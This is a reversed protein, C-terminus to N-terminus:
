LILEVLSLIAKEVNEGTLASTRLYGSWKNADELSNIDSDSVEIFEVLDSKNGLVFLPIDPCIKHAKTHWFSLQKLSKSQTLDFVLLCGNSGQLYYDSMQDIEISTTGAIDWIVLEVKKDNFVINKTTFDAGLTAKYETPFKNQCYRSVLSTKGVNSEGLITIKIRLVM